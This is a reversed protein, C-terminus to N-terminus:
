KQEARVGLYIIQPNDPNVLLASGIRATPLRSTNWTLGGDISRYFTTGTVYYLHKHNKPNIAVARIAADSAAPILEIEEWTIGYDPSKLIKNAGALIMVGESSDINLERIAGIKFDKVVSSLNNLNSINFNELSRPSDAPFTVSISNFSYLEDKDTIAFLLRSDQPSMKISRIAGSFRHITRWHVGKDVSKIIEGRSTSIYINDTNYHDVLVGTLVVGPNNDVFVQEFSRACDFSRYLRNEVTAFLTCKLKPDIALGRITRAPLSSARQWGDSLNYTFFLGRDFTTLYLANSDSPDLILDRIDLHTLSVAQGSASPMFSMNRWSSGQNSSVFIGGTSAQSGSRRISCASLSVLLLLIIFLLPLKKIM